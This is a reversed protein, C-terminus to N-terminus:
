GLLEEYTKNYKLLHKNIKDMNDNNIEIKITKNNFNKTTDIFMYPQENHVTDGDRLYLIVPEIEINYKNKDYAVSITGVSASEWDPEAVIDSESVESVESRTDSNDDNDSPIDDDDDDFTVKKESEAKRVLISKSEVTKVAPKGKGKKEPESMMKAFKDDPIEFNKTKLLKKIADNSVDVGEHKEAFKNLVKRYNVYVSDGNPLIYKNHKLTDSFQLIRRDVNGNKPIGDEDCTKGCTKCYVTNPAVKGCCQTFLGGNLRIAECGPNKVGMFCLPIEISPESKKEKSSKKPESGLLALIRNFRDDASLGILEDFNDCISQAGDRMVSNIINEFSNFYRAAPNLNM